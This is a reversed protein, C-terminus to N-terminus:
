KWRELLWLLDEEEVWDNGDPNCRPDAEGAPKQWFLSFYFLDNADLRGDGDTDGPRATPTPTALTGTPSASPTVIPGTPTATATPIEGTPTASPTATPGTPTVTATPIEGTPTRTLTPTPTSTRTPIPPEETPSPSHTSTATPTWTSTPELTPTPSATPTRTPTLTATSTPTSTPPLCECEDAGIEYGGGLPRSEGDIDVSVGANIGSDIAASGYQLHFDGAGREVFLPNGIVDNAGESEGSRHNLLNDYFGNYDSLVSRSGSADIAIDHGVLFNDLIIVNGSSGLVKLGVGGVGGNDAITNHLVEVISSDWAGAALGDGSEGINHNHYIWNNVVRAPGNSVVLGGGAVPGQLIGPGGGAPKLVGEAENDYIRNAEIVTETVGGGVVAVGGGGWRAQNGTIRNGRITAAAKWGVVVGGGEYLSAKGGTITFGEVLAHVNEGQITVVTGADGGHLTTSYLDWDRSWDGENYGGLLNVNRSLTVCEVYEGQAVYVTGGSGTDELAQTVTAFPFEPAGTGTVSGVLASVFSEMPYAEDAGIDMTGGRPRPERDLDHTLGVSNDGANVLPSDLRLHYDGGARDVFAPADTRHHPGWSAGSVDVTNDYYDNYDLDLSVAGFVLGTHHGVFINNRVTAGTGTSLVVGKQSHAPGNDVVTNNVFLVPSSDHVLVGGFANTPSGTNRAVINNSVTVPGHTWLLLGGPDSSGSANNLIRNADVEGLALHYLYVGGAVISATNSSIVNGAIVGESSKAFLGGGYDARNSEIVNEGVQYGSGALVFLGGGAYAALNGFIQNSAIELNSAESAIGGGGQPHPGAVSRTGTAHNEFVTNYKFEQVGSYTRFYVGGGAGAVNGSITNRFAEKLYCAFIGGGTGEGIDSAVNSVLVNDHFVPTYYGYVGGGWGDGTVSARNHAIHNGYLNGYTYVGGGYGPGNVTAINNVIENGILTGTMGGMYVGGGEGRWGGAPSLAATNDAILNGVLHLTSSWGSAVGGGKGGKGTGKQAINHTITNYEIVATNNYVYIGGGQGQGSPNRSAVNGIIVNHRVTTHGEGVFSEGIWIGGGWGLPSTSDGGTITFGEITVESGAYVRVVCGAQQADITTVYADWDRITFDTNWGGELLVSKNIEITEPYTEATVRITDGDTAADIADQITHYWETVHPHVYLIEAGAPWPIVLLLGILVSKLLRKAM